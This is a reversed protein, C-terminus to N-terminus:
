VLEGLENGHGTEMPSTGIFTLSRIETSNANDPYVHSRYVQSEGEGYKFFDFYSKPLHHDLTPWEM